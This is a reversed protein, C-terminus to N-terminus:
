AGGGPADDQAVVGLRVTFWFCSGAGKRSEVGIEGGLLGVLRRAIALGLGTGGYKRTSSGDVQEFAQFLRQQEEPSLGIGTDSVEFRLLADGNQRELLRVALGIGGSESFKVANDALKHLVQGLQIADGKLRRPAEPAIEIRLALGKATAKDQVRAAAADLLACLEFEERELSLTHTEIRVYNLIDDILGLLQRSATLMRDLQGQQRADLTSGKLLYGMGMIANMPTRLEHSMNALFANKAENAAEAARKARLLAERAEREASIDEITCMTGQATQGRDLARVLVRVWVLTKDKRLWQTEYNATGGSAIQEQAAQTASCAPMQDSCLLAGPQGQLEGSEYGLIEEFKRNCVVFAQERLMAIGVPATDFVAQLQAHTKRLTDATAALEATREAVRQELRDRYGALEQEAQKQASIDFTAGDIWLAQGDADYTARGRTSVWLGRKPDLLYNFEYPERRKVARAILGSMWDLDEARVLQALTLEGSLYREVPQGSLSEIGTSIYSVRWPPQPECRFVSAPVNEILSQFRERSERLQTAAQQMGQQHRQQMALLACLLLDIALGGFLVVWPLASRNQQEFKASSRVRLTWLHGAVEVPKDLSLLPQRQGTESAHLLRALRPDGDYVEVESDNDLPGFASRMLESANFSSSVFGQLAARRAAVTALAMGKRYVPLYLQFGPQTSGEPEQALLIRGSLTPEGTDRARELAARRVPESYMDFGIARLNHGSRPEIYLIPALWPRDGPPHIQYGPHGQARVEAEHRSREAGSLLPAYGMGQVGPLRRELELAAHYAQWEQQSIAESAAFLGVAGHLVQEYDHMRQILVSRQKDARHEFRDRTQRAQDFATYRWLGLTVLVTLGLVAWILGVSGPWTLLRGDEPAHGLKSMKGTKM